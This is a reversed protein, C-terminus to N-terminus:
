HGKEATVTKADKALHNPGETLMAEARMMGYRMIKSGHIMQNYREIVLQLEEKVESHKEAMEQGQRLTKEVETMMREADSMMQRAKAPDKGESMMQMAERMMKAGAMMQKSGDFSMTKGKTVTEDGTHKTGSQAPAQVPAAVVFALCAFLVVVAIVMNGIGTKMQSCGRRSITEEPVRQPCSRIPWGSPVQQQM